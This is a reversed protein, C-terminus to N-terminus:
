RLRAIWATPYGFRAAQNQAERLTPYNGFRVRYWREDRITQEAVYVGQINDSMLRNQWELADDKNTSSFVQVVFVGAKENAQMTNVGKEKAIAPINKRESTQLAGPPSPEAVSDVPTTLPLGNTSPTSDPVVVARPPPLPTQQEGTSETTFLKDETSPLFVKYAIFAVISVFAVIFVVPLWSRNKAKPEPQSQHELPTPENLAVHQNEQHQNPVPRSPAFGESGIFDSTDWNNPPTSMLGISSWLTCVFWTGFVWEV